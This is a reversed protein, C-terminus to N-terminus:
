NPIENKEEPMDPLLDRIKKCLRYHTCKHNTGSAREILKKFVLKIIIIKGYSESLNSDKFLTKQEKFFWDNHESAYISHNLYYFCLTGLLNKEATTLEATEAMEIPLFEQFMCPEVDKNMNNM